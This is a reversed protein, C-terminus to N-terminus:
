GKAKALAARAAHTAAEYRSEAKREDELTAESHGITMQLSQSALFYEELADHANCARVIFKADAKNATALTAWRGEKDFADIDFSVDDGADTVEWPTATHEASM